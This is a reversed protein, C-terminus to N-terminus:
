FCHLSGYNHLITTNTHDFGNRMGNGSKLISFKSTIDSNAVLELSFTIFMHCSQILVYEEQASLEMGELAHLIFYMLTCPYIGRFFEVGCRQMVKLYVMCFEKLCDDKNLPENTLSVVEKREIDRMPVNKALCSWSLESSLMTYPVVGVDDPLDYYFRYNLWYCIQLM